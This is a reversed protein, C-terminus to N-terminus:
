QYIYKPKTGPKFYTEDQYKELFVRPSLDKGLNNCLFLYEMNVERLTAVVKEKIHKSLEANPIVRNQLEVHIEWYEDMNKEYGKKIVFKGTIKKLFPSHNLAVHIHEPYINAAYLIFTNDSRGSMIVFPIKWPKKKTGYQFDWIPFMNNLRKLVDSFSVIYGQDKLDFRALPIGSSSTFLLNNVAKDGPSEIFSFLPNYQFVSPTTRFGFYEQVRKEGVTKRIFISFPTEYGMLLFESSGYVSLAQEPVCKAKGAVYDRWKENFGESCFLMKIKSTKIKEARTTEIVDKIFFPHGVLITQEYLPSLERLLRVMEAKNTGVTAITINGSKEAVAVSPLVTAIGSVYVGMPFGILLLTKHKDAEFLYRYLLEHTIAAEFEQHGGRPWFKPAGTTGSSAAIIRASSVDGGWMRETLPYKEIYNKKDTIPVKQFDEITTITEHKVKNKKLFDKYAPVREAMEHFLRLAKKEGAERWFDEGKERLMKEYVAIDFQSFKAVYNKRPEFSSLSKLIQKEKPSLM